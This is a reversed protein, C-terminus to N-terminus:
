EKGKRADEREEEIVEELFRRDEYSLVADRLLDPRRKFTRRIAEKRRWREVALHNGELLVKPVQMGRYEPPRTYQPGELLGDSFSDRFASDDDGLIGPVFRSVTDLVVMAPIEGGTLVYDGISLEMDALSRVREDFGEYHGAILLLDEKLALTKAIASTLKEGQPTLLVTFPKEGTKNIVWDYAEFVPEPKIVM